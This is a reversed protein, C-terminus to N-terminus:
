RRTMRSRRAHCVTILAIAQCDDRPMSLWHPWSLKCRSSVKGVQACALLCPFNFASCLAASRKSADAAQRFGSVKIETIVGAKPARVDITVKDTEIQAIVEDEAVADGPAKAITGAAITGICRHRATQEVVCRCCSLRLSAM